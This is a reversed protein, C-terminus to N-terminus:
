ASRRLLALWHSGSIARSEHGETSIGHGSMKSGIDALWTSGSPAILHGSVSGTAGFEALSAPSFEPGSGLVPILRGKSRAISEISGDALGALGRAVEMVLANAIRMSQQFSRDPSSRAILDNPFVVLASESDMRAAAELARAHRQREVSFPLLALHITPKSLGGRLRNLATAIGTGTAGGLGACHLVIKRTFAEKIVPPLVSVFHSAVSSAVHEWGQVEDPTTLYTPLGSEKKARLLHAQDTGIALARAGAPLEGSSLVNIGAGGSAILSLNDM